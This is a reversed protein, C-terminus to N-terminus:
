MGDRIETALEVGTAGRSMIAISLADQQARALRFAARLAGRSAEDGAALTLFLRHERAGPTGFDNEESGLALM